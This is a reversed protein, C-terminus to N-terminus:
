ERLNHPIPAVPQAAAKEEDGRKWTRVAAKWSKMKTKGLMWNRAEYWDCFKQGDLAFKISKAYETVEEPTPPKFSRNRDALTNEVISLRESLFSIAEMYDRRTAANPDIQIRAIADAGPHSM